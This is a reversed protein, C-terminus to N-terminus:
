YRHGAARAASRHADVAALQERNSRVSARGREYESQYRQAPSPAPWNPAPPRVATAAMVLAVVWGIMTWGLLLNLIFVAAANHHHRSCAVLSPVFYAFLLVVFVIFGAM